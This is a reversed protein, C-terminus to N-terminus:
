LWDTAELCTEGILECKRVLLSVRISNTESVAFQCLTFRLAEGENQMNFYSTPLATRRAAFRFLM